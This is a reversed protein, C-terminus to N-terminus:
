PQGPVATPASPGAPQVTPFLTTEPVGLAAAFVQWFHPSHESWRYDDNPLTVRECGDPKVIAWSVEAQDRYFTLDYAVDLDLPCSFITSPFPPLAYLADYLQQVDAADRVTQDLPSIHNAPFRSTRLVHVVTVQPPTATQAATTACSALALVLAVVGLMALTRALALGRRRCSQRRVTGRRGDM